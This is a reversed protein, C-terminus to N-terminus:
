ALISSYITQFSTNADSPLLAYGCVAQWVSRGLYEQGLISSQFPDGTDIGNRMDALGCRCLAGFLAAESGVVAVASTLQDAM